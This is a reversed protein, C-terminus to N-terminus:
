KLGLGICDSFFPPVNVNKKTQFLPETFAEVKQNLQANIEISLQSLCPHDGVIVVKDIEYQGKALNSHYVNMMRNIEMLVPTLIDSVQRSNGNWVLQDVLSRDTHVEVAEEPFALPIQRTIVPKHHHFVSLLLSDADIQVLLLHEQPRALDLHFYLRYYSLCTLDAVEPHLKAKSITEKYQQVVSEKSAILLVEKEVNNVGKPVAEIIPDEFPLHLSQGLQFYLHGKIEDEQLEMPVNAQRIIVHSDPVCFRTLRRKIRADKVFRSLLPTFEDMNQIVGNNIFGGPIYKQGYKIIARNKGTEVFRVYRGNIIMNVRHHKKVIIGGM